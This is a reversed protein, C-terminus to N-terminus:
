NTKEIRWVRTVPAVTEFVANLAQPEAQRWGDLAPRLYLSTTGTWSFADEILYDVDNGLVANELDEPRYSYPYELARQGTVIYLLDAKRCMVISSMDGNAKLWEMAQLYHAWEPDSSYYEQLPQQWGYWVNQQVRRAEVVLASVVLLACGLGLV